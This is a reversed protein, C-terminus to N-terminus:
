GTENPPHHAVPLAPDRLLRHVEGDRRTRGERGLRELLPVMVRRSTGVRGRLESVTLGEPDARLAQSVGEVAAAYAAAALHVGPGVEVIAGTRQLFAVVKPTIGAEQLAAAGPAEVGAAEFLRRGRGVRPDDDGGRGASGPPVVAGGRLELLGRAQLRLLVPDGWEASIGLRQLLARRPLGPGLPDATADADVIERARRELLAWSHPAFWLGGVDVLQGAVAAAALARRAPAPAVGARRAATRVDVGAVAAGAEVVALGAPGEPGASALLRVRAAWGDLPAATWRRHQRPHADLVLGGALTAAPAPARLLVRDGPLAVLPRALRLQGYAQHGPAVQREGALWVEAAIAATGHLCEVQAGHRLGSAGARPVDLLVDVAGTEDLGGPAAVLSGRPVAGLQVGRLAMALRGGPSAEGVSQGRRELRLVRGVAGAPWARVADGVRFTGGDLTGTVVTGTGVVTFSRDVFLRPLGRDVRPDVRALAGDVAQPLRDLGQGSRVSVPVVDTVSLGLGEALSRTASGVEAARGPDLDVKTVVVVVQSVGLLRLIAAHERTQPMVGDDVAACLLACDVSRVGTAMTRVFREHGPVDVVSVELGSPLQWPAFGLAITMGRRREMELRDCDVGTLAQVLQTKGHDVHGATGVALETV